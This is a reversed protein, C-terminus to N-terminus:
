PSVGYEQLLKRTLATYVRSELIVDTGAYRVYAPNYVDVLEYGEQITITRLKPEGKRAGSKYVEGPIEVRIDKFARKLERDWHGADVGLLSRSLDSLSLGIGGEHAPRTDYLHALIYTDVARDVITSSYFTSDDWVDLAGLDYMVNHLVWKGIHTGVVDRVVEGLEGSEVPIVYATHSNGVQVLRLRWTPMFVNLGTSETDLGLIPQDRVFGLIESYDDPDGNLVNIGVSETGLWVTYRDM